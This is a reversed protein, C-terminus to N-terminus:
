EVVLKSLSPTVFFPNCVWAHNWHIWPSVIFSLVCDRFCKCVQNGRAFPSSQKWFKCKQFKIMYECIDIISFYPNTTLRAKWNKVKNEGGFNPHEQKKDPFILSNTKNLMQSHFMKPIFKELSAMTNDQNTGNKQNTEWPKLAARFTACSKRLPPKNPIPNGTCNKRPYVLFGGVFFGGLLEM